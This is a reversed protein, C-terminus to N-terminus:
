LHRFLKIQRYFREPLGSKTTFISIKPTLWGANSVIRTSAYNEAGMEVTAVDKLKVQEGDGTSRIIIEKFDEVTSLRGTTQIAYRFMQSPEIPSDGLAGSSVQVNQEKIASIVENVTMNLSALQDPNIWIRMAYDAGGLLAVDGIGPIRSIEDKINLSIYNNLWLSNYTGKPSYLSLVLLMNSSKEKVIIGQRQVEEPLHPTAWNVRNQVNVTNMDGDTGIGFTVTTTASGSDSSTSSMYLMRKVGNVQAEIPAIITQEVTTADAGPYNASVSVQSPTINPYQAVPLEKIAILGALTIVISIVFAFCPHEIFFKSIM